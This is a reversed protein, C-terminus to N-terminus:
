GGAAGVKVCGAILKIWDSDFDTSHRSGFESFYRFILTVMVGNEKRCLCVLTGPMEQANQPNGPNPFFFKQPCNYHIEEWQM